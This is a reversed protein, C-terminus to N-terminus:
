KAMVKLRQYLTKLRRYFPIARDIFKKKEEYMSLALFLLISSSAVFFTMSVYVWIKDCFTFKTEQSLVSHGPITIDCQININSHTAQGCKFVPIVDNQHFKFIKKQFDNNSFGLSSSM